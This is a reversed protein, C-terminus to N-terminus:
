AQVQHIERTGMFDKSQMGATLVGSADWFVRGLAGQSEAKGTLPIPDAVEMVISKPAIKDNV